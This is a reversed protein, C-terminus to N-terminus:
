IHTFVEHITLYDHLLCNLEVLCGWVKFLDENGRGGERVDNMGAVGVQGAMSSIFVVRGQRRGMMGPLLAQTPYVSGLM